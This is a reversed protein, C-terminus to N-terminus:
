QHRGQVAARFARHLQAEAQTCQRELDEAEEDTIRGDALAAQVTATFQATSATALVALPLAESRAPRTAKGFREALGALVQDGYRDGLRVIEALGIERRGARWHSLISADVGAVDALMRDTPMREGRSLAVAKCADLISEQLAALTTSTPM